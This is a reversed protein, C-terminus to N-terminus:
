RWSAAKGLYLSGAGGETVVTTEEIRDVAGSEGRVRGERVRAREGVRQAGVELGRCRAGVVGRFGGPGKDRARTPRERSLHSEITPRAMSPSASARDMRSGAAPQEHPAAGISTMSEKEARGGRTQREVWTHRARSVLSVLKSYRKAM